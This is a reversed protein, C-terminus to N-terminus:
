RGWQGLFSRSLGPSTRRRSSWMPGAALWGGGRHACGGAVGHRALAADAARGRGGRAGEAIEALVALFVRLRSPEVNDADVLIQV